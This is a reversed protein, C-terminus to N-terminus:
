ADPPELPMWGDPKDETGDPNVWRESTGRHEVWYHWGSFLDRQVVLIPRGDKPATEIPRWACREREERREECRGQERAAALAHDIESVLPAVSALEYNEFYALLEPVLARAMERDRGSPEAM